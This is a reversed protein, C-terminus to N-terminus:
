LVPQWYAPHFEYGSGQKSIFGTSPFPLHYAAIQMRDAAAMDLLRKRAAAAMAPDMDAWLAWDPNRVLIQHNVTDSTVLLKGNGSAVVFATHGPSHGRADVATIGPVLEKGHEYHKLYKAIPDFVAERERLRGELGAAGEGGRRRRDLAEM